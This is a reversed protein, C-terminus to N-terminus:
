DILGKAEQLKEIVKRQLGAKLRNEAVLPLYLDDLRRWAADDCPDCLRELLSVSTEM